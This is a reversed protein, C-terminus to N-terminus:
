APESMVHLLTQAKLETEEWEAEADSGWTIGAGSGYYLYDGQKWFTRIAVKLIAQNEDADVIGFAGCYINRDPEFRQIFKLASSKPAGTVSGPPFTAAFIEGWSANPQLTGVVESVLQSAYPLEQRVLLAPVKISDELCIRSLDNRMLDVIMINESIDKNLFAEGSKATGKIPSTSLTTGTRQLFIEPSFSLIEVEDVGFLNSLESDLRLYFLNQAFLSNQLKRYVSFLDSQMPLPARLQRCVNVQYIEGAAIWERAENVVDIYDAKTQLSEWVLNGSWGKPEEEAISHWNEFQFAIIPTNFYAIVIWTGSEDIEALDRTHRVFTSSAKQGSAVLNGTM